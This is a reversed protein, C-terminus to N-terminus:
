RTDTTAAGTAEQHKRPARREKVMQHAGYTSPSPLRDQEKTVPIEANRRETPAYIRMNKPRLALRLSLSRGGCKAISKRDQTM